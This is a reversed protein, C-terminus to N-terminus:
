LTKKPSPQSTANKNVKVEEQDMFSFFDCFSCLDVVVQRLRMCPFYCTNRTLLVVM